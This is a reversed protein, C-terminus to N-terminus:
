SVTGRILGDLFDALVKGSYRAPGTRISTLRPRLLNCIPLDDCGILAIQDPIRFGADQLARMLLIGYDDNYTFVATPRPGQRWREVLRQAEAFDYSLDVREIQLGCAPRGVEEVGQLRQLGLPM